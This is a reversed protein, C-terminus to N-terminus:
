ITIAVMRKKKYRASWLQGVTSANEFENSELIRRFSYDSGPLYRRLDISVLSEPTMHRKWVDFFSEINSADSDILIFDISMNWTNATEVPPDPLPVAIKEIGDTYLVGQVNGFKPHDEPVSDPKLNSPESFFVAPKEIKSKSAGKVLFYVPVTAYEGLTVISGYPAQRAVRYLFNRESEDFECVYGPCESIVPFKLHDPIGFEKIFRKLGM